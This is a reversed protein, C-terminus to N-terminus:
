LSYLAYVPAGDADAAPILSGTYVGAEAPLEPATELGAANLLEPGAQIISVTSGELSPDGPCSLIVASLAGSASLDEPVEAIEFTVGTLLGSSGASAEYLEEEAPEDAAEAYLAAETYLADESLAEESEGASAEVAEEKASDEAYVDEAAAKNQAAGNGISVSKAEKAAYMAEEPAAEEGAAYLASSGNNYAEAASTDGAFCSLSM